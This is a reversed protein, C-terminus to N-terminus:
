PVMEWERLFIAQCRTTTAEELKNSMSKHQNGGFSSCSGWPKCFFVCLSGGAAGSIIGERFSVVVKGRFIPRKVWFSM